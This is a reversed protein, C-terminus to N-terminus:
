KWIIIWNDPSEAYGSTEDDWKVGILATSNQACLNQNFAILSNLFFRLDCDSQGFPLSQIFKVQFTIACACFGCKTKRRFPRTWKFRGPADTWDVVPLRPARMLPLLAPYVMSRPLTFLIFIKNDLKHAIIYYASVILIIYYKFTSWCTESWLPDM